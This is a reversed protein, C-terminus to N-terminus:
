VIKRECQVGSAVSGAGSSVSADETRFVAHGSSDEGEDGAQLLTGPM